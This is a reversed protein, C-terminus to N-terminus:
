ILTLYANSRLLLVSQGSEVAERAGCSGCLDPDCERGAKFCPCRDTGCVRDKGSAPEYCRCGKHRRRGSFHTFFSDLSSKRDRKHMYWKCSPPCRCERGCNNRKRFCECDASSCPGEHSCLAMDNSCAAGGDHDAGNGRMMSSTILQFARSAKRSIGRWLPLRNM